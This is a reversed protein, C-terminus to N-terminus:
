SKKSTGKIYWKSVSVKNELGWDEETEMAKTFGCKALAAESAKNGKMVTATILEAETNNFVYEIMLITAETALGRGWYQKKSRYGISIKNYEKRYGYFEALGCFEEKFYVGLILSGESICETYLAEVLKKEDIHKKEFIFAPVYRYVSKDETMEKIDTVDKEEIKKIVIDGSIIYPIEKFIGIMFTKEM